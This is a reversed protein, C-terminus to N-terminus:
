NVFLSMSLFFQRKKESLETWSESSFESFCIQILADSSLGVVGIWVTRKEERERERKEKEAFPERLSGNSEFESRVSSEEGDPSSIDSTGM